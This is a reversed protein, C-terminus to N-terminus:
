TQKRKQFSALMSVKTGIHCFALWCCINKLPFSRSAYQLETIHPPNERGRGMFDSALPVNKDWCLMLWALMVAGKPQAFTCPSGRLIPTLPQKNKERVGTTVTRQKKFVLKKSFSSIMTDGTDFVTDAQIQFSFLAPRSQHESPLGGPFRLSRRTPNTFFKSQFGLPGSRPLNKKLYQALHILSKVWYEPAEQVGINWNGM